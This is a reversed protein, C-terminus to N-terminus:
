VRRLGPDPRSQARGTRDLALLGPKQIPGTWAMQNAVEDDNMNLLQFGLQANLSIDMLGRYPLIQTIESVKEAPIAKESRCYGQLELAKDNIRNVIATTERTLGAKERAKLVLEQSVSRYASFKAESM